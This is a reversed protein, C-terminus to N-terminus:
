SKKNSKAQLINKEAVKEGLDDAVSIPIM